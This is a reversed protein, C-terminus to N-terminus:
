TPERGFGWLRAFVGTLTSRVTGVISHISSWPDGAGPRSSDMDDPAPAPAPAPVPDPSPDPAASPHGDPLTRTELASARSAIPRVPPSSAPLRWRWTRLEGASSFGSVYWDGRPHSTPAPPLQPPPRSRVLTYPISPDPDSTFSIPQFATLPPEAHYSPPPHVEACDPSSSPSLDSPSESPSTPTATPSFSPSVCPPSQAADHRRAQEARWAAVQPRSSLPFVGAGDDADEGDDAVHHSPQPSPSSHDSPPAPPSVCPSDPPPPSADSAPPSVCALSARIDDLTPSPCDTKHLHPLFSFSVPYGLHATASDIAMQTIAVPALATSAHITISDNIKPGVLCDASTLATSVADLAQDDLHGLCISVRKLLPVNATALAADLATCLPHLCVSPRMLAIDDLLRMLVMCNSFPVRWSNLNPANIMASLVTKPEYSCKHLAKEAWAIHRLDSDTPPDAADARARMLEHELRPRECALETAIDHEFEAQDTQFRVVSLPTAGGTLSYCGSTSTIHSRRIDVEHYSPGFVFSRIAASCTLFTNGKGHTDRYTTRGGTIGGASSPHCPRFRIVDHHDLADLLAAINSTRTPSLGPIAAVAQLRSRDARICCTYDGVPRLQWLELARSGHLHVAPEWTIHQGHQLWRVQFTIGRARSVREDLICDIAYEPTADARLPWSDRSPDAPADDRAAGVVRGVSLRLSVRPGLRPLSALSLRPCVHVPLSSVGTIGTCGVRADSLTRPIALNGDKDSLRRWAHLWDVVHGHELLWPEIGPHLIRIVGDSQVAFRHTNRSRESLLARMRTYLLHSDFSLPRPSNPDPANAHARAFVVQSIVGAVNAAVESPIETDGPSGSVLLPTCTDFLAENTMSHVDDPEDAYCALIARLFADVPLRSYPCDILVHRALERQSRSDVHWCIDCKMHTPGAKFCRENGIPRADLATLYLSQMLSRGHRANPHMSRFMSSRTSGHLPAISPDLAWCTSSTPPQAPQAFTRPILWRYSLLLHYLTFVDVVSARLPLRIRDTPNFAFALLAPNARPPPLDAGCLKRLDILPGGHLLLSANAAADHDDEVTEREHECHALRTARWVQVREVLPSAITVEPAGLAYPILLGDPRAIHPSFLCLMPPPHPTLSTPEAISSSHVRMVTSPPHALVHVWSGDPFPTYQCLEVLSLHPSTDRIAAAATIEDRMSPTISALLEKCVWLPLRDSRDSSGARSLEDASKLRLTSHPSFGTLLDVVHTVGRQALRSLRTHQENAASVLAATPKRVLKGDTAREVHRESELTGAQERVPASFCGHLHPNYALPLSIIAPFMLSPIDDPSFTRNHTSRHWIGDDHGGAGTVTTPRTSQYTPQTPVRQLPRAPADDSPVPRLGDGLQGWLMFAERWFAPMDPHLHLFPCNSLLLASPHHPFSPYSRRLWYYPINQVPHALPELLCRVARIRLARVFNFVDLCRRGGEPYDQVLVARTVRSCGRSDSARSVVPREVFSWALSQWRRLVHDISPLTQAETLYWAKAHSSNKIILNRGAYTSGAGLTQWQQLRAQILSTLDDRPSSHSRSRRGRPAIWRSAVSIPDGLFVGLYRVLDSSVTLDRHPWAPPLSFQLRLPGLPFAVTKKWNNRGGSAREYVRQLTHFPPLQATDRLCAGIDDAMAVAVRAGGGPSGDCAPFPIPALSCQVAAGNDDLVTVSRRSAVSLLSLFPQIAIIFALAACPDGQRVSNRLEIPSGLYGNIKIRTTANSLLLSFLAIFSDPIQMARMTQRLYEHNVLDFAKTADCFLLLGSVDLTDAYHALDQIFRANHFCSRRQQCAVQADDIVWPLATQLADALCRALIKYLIPCVSIPRWNALDSKSGKKHLLTTISVNLDSPFSPDEGGSIEAFTAVLLDIVRAAQASNEDDDDGDSADADEGSTSNKRLAFLKFFESPFGDYGPVAGNALGSVAAHVTDFNVISEFSALRHAHEPPLVKDDEHIADFLTGMDETNPCFEQNFLGGPVSGYFRDAAINMEHQKRFTRTPLGAVTPQVTLQSIHNDGRDLARQQAFFERRCAEGHIDSDYARDLLWQQDEAQKLLSLSATATDLRAQHHTLQAARALPDRIARLDFRASVGIGLASECKGIEDRLARKKDMHARARERVFTQVFCRVSDLLSRMRTLAPKGESQDLSTAVRARIKDVTDADKLAHLPLSWQTPPKPIDSYAVRCTVAAHDGCSHTHSLAGRVRILDYSRPSTHTLGILRPASSSSTIHQSIYIRDPRSKSFPTGDVSHTYTFERAHPRLTRLCDCMPGLSMLFASLSHLGSHNPAAHKDCPTHAFRTYDLDSPRNNADILLFTDLTGPPVTISARLRAYFDSQPAGCDAHAAILLTARSFISVSVALYRGDPDAAVVRANAFPGGARLMICVGRHSALSDQTADRHQSAWFILGPWDAAWDSEEAPSACNTELLATVDSCAHRFYSKRFSADRLGCVNHLRFTLQRQLDAHSRRSPRRAGGRGNGHEAHILANHARHTVRWLVQLSLVLLPAVLFIPSLPMAPCFSLHVHQSCDSSRRPVCLKPILRPRRSAREICSRAHQSRHNSCMLPWMHELCQALSPTPQLSEYQRMARRWTRAHRVIARLLAREHPPARAVHAVRARYVTRLSDRSTRPAASDCVIHRYTCHEPSAPPATTRLSAPPATTDRTEAATSQAAERALMRLATQARQMRMRDHQRRRWGRLYARLATSTVLPASSALITDHILLPPPIHARERPHFGCAVAVACRWVDHLLLSPAALTM